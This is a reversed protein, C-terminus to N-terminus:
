PTGVVRALIEAVGAGAKAEAIIGGAERVAEKVPEAANGVAAPFFGYRGDLMDLDNLSDGIALVREPPVNSIAAVHRLTHGKGGESAVVNTGWYNRQVRVGEVGRFVEVLIQRAAEAEEPTAFFYELGYNSFVTWEKYRLGAEKLAAFAEPTRGLIRQSVKDLAQRRVENYDLDERVEGDECWFVFNERAVLFQPYPKRFVLGNGKFIDGLQWYPRGTALGVSIGREVFPELAAVSSGLDSGHGTLTLDFDTAILEINRRENSM